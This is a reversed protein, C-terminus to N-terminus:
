VVSKRDTEPIYIRDGSDNEYPKISVRTIPNNINLDNKNILYAVMTGEKIDSYLTSSEGGYISVCSNWSRGTSCGAIDYANRSICIILNSTEYDRDRNNEKQYSLLLKTNGAKRLAKGIKLKRKYKDIVYGAEFFVDKYGLTNLYAVIDDKISKTYPIYIRGKNQFLQKHVEGANVEEWYRYFKRYESPVLAENLVSYLNFKTILHKM